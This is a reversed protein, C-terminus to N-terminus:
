VELIALLYAEAAALETAFYGLHKNKGQIKVRARWKSTKKCFYVGTYISSFKGEGKGKLNSKNQRDTVIRLNERRNDLTDHNIHDVQANPDIAGVIARHLSTTTRKGTFLDVVNRIAYFTETHRNWWAYWKHSGHINYDAEDLESVQNQTLTLKM